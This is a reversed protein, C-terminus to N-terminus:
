ERNEMIGTVMRAVDDTPIQLLLEIVDDVTKLQEIRDDAYQRASEVSIALNESMLLAHGAYFEAFADETDGRKIMRKM